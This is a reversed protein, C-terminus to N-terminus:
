PKSGRRLLITIDEVELRLPIGDVIFAETEPDWYSVFMELLRPQDRLIGLNWFKYIGCIQLAQQTILDSQVDRDVDEHERERWELVM